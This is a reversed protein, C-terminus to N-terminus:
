RQGAALARRASENPYAAFAATASARAVGIQEIADIRWIGDDGRALEFRQEFGPGDRPDVRVAVTSRNGSERTDGIQTALESVRQALGSRSLIALWGLQHRDLALPTAPDVAAGRQADAATAVRLGHRRHFEDTLLPLTRLPDSELADFYAQAVSAPTEHSAACGLALAIVAVFARRM